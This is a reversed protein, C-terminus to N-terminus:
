AHEIWKAKIDVNKTLAEPLIKFIKLDFKDLKKEKNRGVFYEEIEDKPYCAEKQKDLGFSHLDERIFINPKFPYELM